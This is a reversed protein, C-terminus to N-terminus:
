RGHLVKNVNAVYADCVEGETPFPFRKDSALYAAVSPMAIIQQHLAAIRPYNDLADPVMPLLGHVFEALLVDATCLGGVSPLGEIFGLRAGNDFDKIKEEFVPLPCLASPLPTSSRNPCSPTTPYYGSEALCATM